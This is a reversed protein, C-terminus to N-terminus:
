GSANCFEKEKKNNRSVRNLFLMFSDPPTMDVIKGDDQIHNLNVPKKTAPHYLGKLWIKTDTEAKIQKAWACDNVVTVSLPISCAIL